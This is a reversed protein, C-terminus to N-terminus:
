LSNPQIHVEALTRALILGRKFGESDAPKPENQDLEKLIENIKKVITAATYNMGGQVLSDVQKKAKVQDTADFQVKRKNSM